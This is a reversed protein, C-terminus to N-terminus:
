KVSHENRAWPHGERPALQLDKETIMYQDRGDRLIDTKSQRDDQIFRTIDGLVQAGIQDREDLGKVRAREQLCRRLKLAAALPTRGGKCINEILAPSLGSRAAVDQLDLGLGKIVHDALPMRFVAAIIREEGLPAKVGHTELAANLVIVFREATKHRVPMLNIVKEISSKGIKDTLTGSDTLDRAMHDLQTVNLDNEDIRRLAGHVFFLPRNKLKIWNSRSLVIDAM